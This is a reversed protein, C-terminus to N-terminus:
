LCFGADSALERRLDPEMRGTSGLNIELQGLDLRDKIEIRASPLDLIAFSGGGADVLMKKKNASVRYGNFEGLETEKRKEPDLDFLFLRSRSDQLGNRRYFLKQGVSTLGSYSSASIPLADIRQTL